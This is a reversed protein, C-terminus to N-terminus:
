KLLEDLLVSLSKKVKINELKSVKVMLSITDKEDVSNDIIIKDLELSDALFYNIDKGMKQAIMWLKGIPIRNQGREYKFLQQGSVGIFKALDIRTINKLIRAQLIRAGIKQDIEQVRTQKIM